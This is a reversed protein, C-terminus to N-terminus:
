WLKEKTGLKHGDVAFKVKFDYVYENVGEMTDRILDLYYSLAEAKIEFVIADHIQLVMRCEPIDKSFRDWCNVMVREVIDAAGGQIVSNMAKRAEQDPDLFHRFRGSWIGVKGYNRVSVEKKYSFAAFGPYAALYDNRIQKAAGVSIGLSAAIKRDGAGYQTAYVFTKCADRTIGLRTSMEDFIDRGEDFVRRLSTEKAYATALRLELQSYDAEVLVYGEQPIFCAKLRNAWPKSSQRPIQQLNPERCSLRGTVTGGDEPDKHMVFNPRLRGDPSRLALWSRLFGISKQWGRYTLINQVKTDGPFREELLAEYEPMVSKAFSPKPIHDAPNKGKAPKTWLLVPLGLDDILFKKLQLPSSPIIGGLEASARAMEREGENILYQIRRESVLVGNTKMSDLVHVLKQKHAWMEDTAEKKLREILVSCLRLTLEADVCAYHYMVFAPVMRWGWGPTETYLKLIDSKEKGTTVRLYYRALSDLGKGTFPRNEDILHAMLMTDYFFQEPSITIGVTRLSPIDFKAHHFVLASANEILAKVAVKVEQDVNVDVHNFPFYTSIIEDGRYFAISIGTLYDEGTTVNLGTTETDVALLDAEM